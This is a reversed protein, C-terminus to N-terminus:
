PRKAARAPDSEAVPYTPYEASFREWEHDALERKGEQRLQRIHKLWAEPDARLLATDLEQAAPAVPVAQVAAAQPENREQRAMPVASRVTATDKHVSARQRQAMAAAPAPAEAAPAVKSEPPAPPPPAAYNATAAQSPRSRAAAASSQLSRERAVSEREGSSQGLSQGSLQDADDQRALAPPVGTAPESPPGKVPVAPLTTSRVEHEVGSRMVISVVLVLSAALATPVSWRLLRRRKGRLAALGDARGDSPVAEAPADPAVAHRAQALIRRELEPPVAEDAAEALTRYRQSVQSNGGLYEALDRDQDSTNRDVPESV